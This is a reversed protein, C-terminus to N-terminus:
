SGQDRWTSSSESPRIVPMQKKRSVLLSNGRKPRGARSSPYPSPRGILEPQGRPRLLRSCDLAFSLLGNSGCQPRQAGPPSLLSSRLESDLARRDSPLAVARQTLPQWGQETPEDHLPWSVVDCGCLEANARPNATTSLYRSWSWSGPFRPEDGLRREENRGRKM